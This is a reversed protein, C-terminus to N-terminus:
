GNTIMAGTWGRAKIARLIGEIEPHALPEGGGFLSVMRLGPLMQDFLREYDALKLGQELDTRQNRRLVDPEFDQLDCMPCVHNCLFQLPMLHLTRPGAVTRGGSTAM